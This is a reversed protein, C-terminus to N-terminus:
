LADRVGTALRMPGFAHPLIEAVTTRLPRGGDGSALLLAEPGFEFLVQRCAGCPTCPEDGDGVVAVALVPGEDGAATMAGIAVREACMTLGYSANEVNVGDYVTGSASLLAAGVRFNSYPAYARRRLDRARHLLGAEDVEVPGTPERPEPKM